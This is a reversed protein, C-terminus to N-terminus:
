DAKRTAKRKGAGVSEGGKFVRNLAGRADGKVPHVYTRVVTDVADGLLEALGNLSYGGALLVTAVSHRTKHISRYPLKLSKLLRVWAYRLLHHTTRQGGATLFLPGSTRGAKALRLAKLAADPVPVVRVGNASKPPGATGDQHQTRSISISEGDFDEVNLAIAEGVRCGTAAVLALARAPPTRTAAKVIRSLEGATFPTVKVKPARPIHALSVPNTGCLGARRAATFATRLVACCLRATNPALPKPKATLWSDCAAEVHNHTLVGVALHGLAPKLYLRVVTQRITKTRPRVRLGDLWRDLWDALTTGEAPPGAKALKVRLAEVTPASREAYKARGNPKRGVIVRGVWVGRGTHFFVSGSGRIRRRHTKAKKGM